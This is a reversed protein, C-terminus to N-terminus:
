KKGWAEPKLEALGINLMILREGAAQLDELCNGLTAIHQRISIPEEDQAASLIQPATAQMTRCIDQVRKVQERWERRLTAHKGRAILIDDAPFM